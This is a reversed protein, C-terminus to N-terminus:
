GPGIVKGRPPKGHAVRNLDAGPWYGKVEHFWQAATRKAEDPNLFKLLHHYLQTWPDSADAWKHRGAGVTWYAHLREANAKGQPSTAVM